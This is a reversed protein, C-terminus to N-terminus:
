PCTPPPRKHVNKLVREYMAAQDFCGSTGQLAIQGAPTERATRNNARMTNLATCYEREVQEVPWDRVEAYEVRLCGAADSGASWAALLIAAAARM